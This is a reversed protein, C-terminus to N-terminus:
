DRCALGKINALRKIYHVVKGDKGDLTVIGQNCSSFSITATGWPRIGSGANPKQLFSGGNGVFGSYVTMVYPQNKVITKPGASSSLWQAEGNRNGKYGYFNLFLGNAPEIINFGSGSYQPDYWTGTVSSVTNPTYGGGGGNNPAKFNGFRLTRVRDGRCLRRLHSRCVFDITFPRRFDFKSRYNTKSYTIPYTQTSRLYREGTVERFIHERDEQRVRVRYGDIRSRGPGKPIVDAVLDYRHQGGGIDCRRRWFRVEVDDSVRIGFYRYYRVNLVQNEDYKVGNICSPLRAYAASGLLMLLVSCMKVISQFRMM